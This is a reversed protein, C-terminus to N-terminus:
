SIVREKKREKEEIKRQGKSTRKRKLTREIRENEFKSLEAPDSLFSPLIM